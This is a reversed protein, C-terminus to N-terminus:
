QGEDATLLAEDDLKDEFITDLNKDNEKNYKRERVWSAENELLIALSMSLVKEREPLRRPNSIFTIDATFAIPLWHSYDSLERILGELSSRRVYPGPSAWIRGWKYIDFNKLWATCGEKWCKIYTILYRFYLFPIAPRNKGLFKM